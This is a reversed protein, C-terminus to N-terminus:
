RHSAAARLEIADLELALKDLDITYSDQFLGPDSVTSEDGPQFLPHSGALVRYRCEAFLAMNSQSCFLQAYPSALALVETGPKCFILNTFAAGMAGIITRAEAFLRVQQEFSQSGADVIEYGSSALLAEVELANIINRGSRRALFVKRKGKVAPDIGYKSFIETQIYKLTRFCVASSKWMPERLNDALNTCSSPIYINGVNLLTSSNFRYIPWDPLLAQLSEFEQPFMGDDVLLPLQKMQPQQALIYAKGLYEILWHYYNPSCRGGLLIAAPLSIKNKYSFWLFIDSKQNLSVVYQWIGAVFGKHPNAAPEYIVFKGDALVQFGGIMKANKISAVWKEPVEVTRPPRRATSDIVQPEQFTMPYAPEIIQLTHGAKRLEAHSITGYRGLLVQEKQFNVQRSIEKAVHKTFIGKKAEEFLVFKYHELDAETFPTKKFHRIKLKLLFSWTALSASVQNIKRKERRGKDVYHEAAPIGKERVDPYNQLYFKEDFFFRVLLITTKEFLWDSFKEMGRNPHRGESFGYTFYHYNTDLGSTAVDHYKKKYYDDDVIGIMSLIRLTLTRLRKM